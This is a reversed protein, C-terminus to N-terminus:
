DMLLLALVKDMRTERGLIVRVKKVAFHKCHCNQDARVSRCFCGVHTIYMNEDLCAGAASKHSELRTVGTIHLLEPIEQLFTCKVM